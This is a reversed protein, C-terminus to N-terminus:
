SRVGQRQWDTGAERLEGLAEDMLRRQDDASLHKRLAKASILTALQATHSWLEQLAQDRATGIERRLRDRESQIETRAKAIMDQTARDADRRAADLIDRVTAHANDIQGQFQDRLHQAEGRTRNAEAIAEAISDERKRLGELMPKWAYRTLIFMLVGFVVLTWLGLDLAPKFIQISGGDDPSGHDGGGAPPEHNKAEHKVANEKAGPENAFGQNAALVILSVLSTLAFPMLPLRQMIVEVVPM